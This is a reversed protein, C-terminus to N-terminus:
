NTALAQKVAWAKLKAGLDTLTRYYNASLHDGEIDHGFEHLILSDVPVTVGRNFFNQGLLAINYTFHNAGYKALYNAGKHHIARVTIDHGLIGKAVEHTYAVIAKIGPTYEVEAMGMEEPTPRMSPTVQGAPLMFGARKVNVWEEKHLMSGYVLTRGQSVAIKNAEPDSMDYIVANEGFRQTIAYKVAEDTIRGDSLADRGWRGNAEEAGTGGFMENYVFTRITRLYSPPVNDRELGLPVKQGVNYHYRDGTDVVPIGMEYISGTEGTLVEYVEVETKRATRKLRGEEDAIETPLTINLTKLPERHAIEKGNYTTTMGMPPILTWITAEIEEIDSKRIRLLGDFRSGAERMTKADFTRKGNENFSVVGKTSAISAEKCMSLVLKEGLNFRGRKNPDGKKNSSAFLTWAHSMDSFGNPDDDEVILRALGKGASHLECTVVKTTQDWSNQLLELVAFSRGKRELIQALGEKSVAFWGTDKAM